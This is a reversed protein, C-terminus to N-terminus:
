ELFYKAIKSLLPLKPMFINWKNKIYPTMKKWMLNIVVMM